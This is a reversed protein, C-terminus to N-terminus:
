FFGFCVYHLVDGAGFASASTKIVFQSGSLVQVEIPVSTDDDSALCTPENAWTFEFSVTCSNSPTSGLQILGVSDTGAPLAGGGCGSVTPKGITTTSLFHGGNGIEWASLPTTMGPPTVIFHLEASHDSATWTDSALGHVAAATSWSGGDYGGFDVTGLVQNANVAALGSWSGNARYVQMGGWNGVNYVLYASWNGTGPASVFDASSGSPLVPLAVGSMNNSLTGQMTLNTAASIAGGASLGSGLNLAGGVTLAGTVSGNGNVTLASATVNQFTPSSSNSPPAATVADWQLNGFQDYVVERVNGTAWIAARGASDLVVPDTNAITLASDSYTTVFTTTGPVYTYVKGGVLPSGNQDLFTQKANPLLSQALAAGPLVILFLLLWAMSRLPLKPRRKGFTSKSRCKDAFSPVM